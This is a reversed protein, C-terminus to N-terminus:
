RAKFALLGVVLALVLGLSTGPSGTIAGGLKGLVDSFRDWGNLGGNVRRRVQEWDGAMAASAVGRDKFYAAFIRAAQYADLALAPNSVLDVGLRKSMATYNSRGTLQIFGRGRYLAGDGPETNGLTKGISTSAGYRSEFYTYPDGNYQESMPALTPLEAKLTAAAAQLVPDQGIGEANLAAVLVPWYRNVREVPYGTAAAFQETSLMKLGTAKQTGVANERREVAM